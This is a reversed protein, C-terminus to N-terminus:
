YVNESLPVYFSGNTITDIYASGNNYYVTGSFTGSISSSDVATITACLHSSSPLSTTSDAYLIGLRQFHINVVYSNSATDSYSTISPHTTPYLFILEVGDSLNSSDNLGYVFTAGGYYVNPDGNNGVPLDYLAKTYGKYTVNVGNVTAKVYYSSDTTAPPTNTPSSSIKKCSSFILLNIFLAITLSLYKM